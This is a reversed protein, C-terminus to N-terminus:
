QSLQISEAENSYKNITLELFSKAFPNNLKPLVKRAENIYFTRIDFDKNDIKVSCPNNIHFAYFNAIESDSIKENIM